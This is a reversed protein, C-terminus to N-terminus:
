FCSQVKCPDMFSFITIIIILFFLIIFFELPGQHPENTHLDVGTGSLGRSSVRGSIEKTQDDFIPAAMSSAYDLIRMDM